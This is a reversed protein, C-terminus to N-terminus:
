RKKNNNFLSQHAELPDLSAPLGQFSCWSGPAVRSAFRFAPSVGLILMPTFGKSVVVTVLRRIGLIKSSSLDGVTDITREELTETAHNTKESGERAAWAGVGETIDLLTSSM